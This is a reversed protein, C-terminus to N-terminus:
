RRVEKAFFLSVRQLENWARQLQFGSPHIKGARWCGSANTGEGQPFLETVGSAVEKSAITTPEPMEPPHAAFSSHSFPSFVSTSSRPRLTTWRLSQGVM